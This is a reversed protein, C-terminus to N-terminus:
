NRGGGCGKRSQEALEASKPKPSLTSPSIPKLSSSFRSPLTFSLPQSSFTGHVFVFRPALRNLTFLSSRSRSGVRWRASSMESGRGREATNTFVLLDM